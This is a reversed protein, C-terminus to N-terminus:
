LLLAGRGLNDVKLDLVAFDCCLHQVLIWHRSTYSHMCEAFQGQQACPEHQRPLGHRRIRLKAPVSGHLVRGLCAHLLVPLLGGHEVEPRLVVKGIGLAAENRGEQVSALDDVLIALHDPIQSGPVEVLLALVHRASGLRGGGDIGAQPALVLEVHLGAEELYRVADVLDPAGVYGVQGDNLAVGAEDDGVGENGLLARLSGKVEVVGM